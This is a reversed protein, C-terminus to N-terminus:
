LLGHKPSWNVPLPTLLSVPALGLLGVSVPVKAFKSRWPWTTPPWSTTACTVDLSRWAVPQQVQCYNSGPPFYKRWLPSRQYSKMASLQRTAWSQLMQFWQSHSFSSLLQCHLICKSARHDVLGQSSPPEQWSQWVFDRKGLSAVASCLRGSKFSTL